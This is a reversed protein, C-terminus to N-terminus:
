ERTIDYCWGRCWSWMATSGVKWGWRWISNRWDYISRCAIGGIVCTPKITRTSGPLRNISVGTIEITTWFYSSISSCHSTYTIIKKKSQWIYQKMKKNTFQLYFNDIQTYLKSIITSLLLYIVKISKIIREWNHYVFCPWQSISTIHTEM